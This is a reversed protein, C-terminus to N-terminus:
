KRLCHIFDFSTCIYWILYYFKSCSHQKYLLLQKSNLGLLNHMEEFQANRRGCSYIAENLINYLDYQVWEFNMIIMLYTTVAAAMQFWIREFYLECPTQIYIIRYTRYVVFALWICVIWLLACPLSTNNAFLISYASFLLFYYLPIRTSFWGRCGGNTM